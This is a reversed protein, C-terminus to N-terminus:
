SCTAQRAVLPRERAVAVGPLNLHDGAKVRGSSIRVDPCRLTLSFTLTSDTLGKKRLGFGEGEKNIMGACYKGLCWCLTFLVIPIRCIACVSGGCIEFIVIIPHCENAVVKSGCQLRFSPVVTTAALTSFSPSSAPISSTALVLVMTPSLSAVCLAANDAIAKSVSM